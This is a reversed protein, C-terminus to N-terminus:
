GTFQNCSSNRSQFDDLAPVRQMQNQRKKLVQKTKEVSITPNVVTESGTQKLKKSTLNLRHLALATLVRTMFM